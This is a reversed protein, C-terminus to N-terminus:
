FKSGDEKSHRAVETLFREAGQEAESVRENPPTCAVSHPMATGDQARGRPTDSM